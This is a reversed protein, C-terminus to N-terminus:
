VVDEQLKELRAQMRQGLDRNRKQKHKATAEAEQLTLSAAHRPHQRQKQIAVLLSLREIEQTLAKKRQVLDKAQQGQQGTLAALTQEKEQWVQDLLSPMQEVFIDEQWFHLIEAVRSRWQPETVGVDIMQAVIDRARELDDIVRGTSIAHVQRRLDEFRM